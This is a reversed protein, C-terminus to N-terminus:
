VAAPDYWVPSNIWPEMMQRTIREQTKPRPIYRRALSLLRPLWRQAIRYRPNFNHVVQRGVIFQVASSYESLSSRIVSEAKLALYATSLAGVTLIAFSGATGAVAKGAELMIPINAAGLRLSELKGAKSVDRGAKRVQDEIDRRIQDDSVNSEQQKRIFDIAKYLRELEKGCIPESSEDLHLVERLLQENKEPGESPIAFAAPDLHLKQVLLKAAPAYEPTDFVCITSESTNSWEAYHKRIFLGVQLKMLYRQVLRAPDLPLNGRVVKAIGDDTQRIAEIFVPDNGKLHAKLQLGFHRWSEYGHQVIQELEERSLTRIIRQAVDRFHGMQNKAIKEYMLPLKGISEYQPYHCVLLENLQHSRLTEWTIVDYPTANVSRAEQQSREVDEYNLVLRRPLLGPLCLWAPYLMWSGVVEPTFVFTASRADM